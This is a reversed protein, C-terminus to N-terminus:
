LFSGESQHDRSRQIRGIPSRPDPLGVIIACAWEHVRLKCLVHMEDDRLSNGYGEHIEQPLFNFRHLVTERNAEVHGTTYSRLQNM